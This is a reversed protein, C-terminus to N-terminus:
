IGSSRFAREEIQPLVGMTDLTKIARPTLGDGCTKDRPFEFKDLLAVRLGSKALFYATASGGPGAGVVAVDYDLGSQQASLNSM